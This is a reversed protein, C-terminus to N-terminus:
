DAVLDCVTARQQKEFRGEEEQQNDKVIPELKHRRRFDKLMPYFQTFAVFCVFGQVAAGVFV